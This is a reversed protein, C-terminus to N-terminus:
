QHHKLVGTVQMLTCRLEKALETVFTVKHILLWIIKISLDMGTLSEIVGAIVNNYLTQAPM